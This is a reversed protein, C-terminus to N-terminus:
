KVILKGNTVIGDQTHQYLYMGSKLEDISIQTTGFLQKNLVLSGTNDFMQLNSQSNNNPIEITIVSTAPNPYLKLKPQRTLNNSNVINDFDRWQLAANYLNVSSKPVHLTTYGIGEFVNSGLKPPTIAECILSELGSNKFAEKGISIVSNPITISRLNTCGFFASSGISTVSNPITISRLGQCGGFVWDGISTLSNPITISTLRECGGFASKGISTLSNTLTISTLGSCGHFAMEAISTLSNPLTISTLGSCGSFANNGISTISNPLTIFTLGSCGQFAGQGISTLTNPLTISTLKSCNYFANNGISTLTNPLTISTLKSCNYFANNGISTVTNPLTISTLGSCGNFANYGISTVTYSKTNYSVSSPIVINGTYKPTQAIVEVTLNTSSSIRYRIGNSTFEQAKITYFSFLAIGILLLNKM